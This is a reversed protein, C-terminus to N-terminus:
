LFFYKLIMFTLIFGELSGAIVQMPTHKSLHVRAWAILAMLVFIPWIIPGFVLYFAAAAGSIGVAHLSIKWYGTIVLVIATNIFSCFALGRALAPAGLFHLIAFGIGGSLVGVILPQIREPRKEVDLTGVKQRRFLDMLYILPVVTSFVLIVGFDRWFTDSSLLLPPYVWMPNTIPNIGWSILKAINRM